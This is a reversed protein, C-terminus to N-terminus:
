KASAVIAIRDGQPSVALRTVSSLGFAALNAVPTWDPEGPRWRYLTANLAALAAGDPMWVVYPDTAGPPLAVLQGDDFATAAPKKFVHHLTVTSAISSEHSRQIFSIAGSPMRQISRGIDAAISQVGGTRTDAVQLTSPKGNEGLIFLAVTAADIWAYYGVRKVEPLLVAASEGRNGSADIQWLRQTGDAEVRVVSINRGDPMVAPSFEGEPTNTVRSIHRADIDYRYIDTAPSAAGPAKPNDRATASGRRVSAFLIQKGDPTFSPQNDYGPSRTINVPPGVVVRGNNTLLSALYIETDPPSASSPLANTSMQTSPNRVDITVEHEHALTVGPLDALTALLEQFTAPTSALTSMQKSFLARTVDIDFLTVRNQDVFPSNTAVIPATSEVAITVRSGQILKQLQLMEQASGSAWATPPESSPDIAFAPFQFTFRELTENVPNLTASVTTSAGPDKSAVQYFGSLGPVHPVLQLRMETVDDFEYTLAWGTADATKIPRVSRPRLNGGLHAAEAWKDYEKQFRRSIDDPNQANAALEPSALTDFELLAAPRITVTQEVIGSGDPRVTILVDSTFCGSLGIACVGVLSIALLRRFV